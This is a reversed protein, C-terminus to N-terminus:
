LFKCDKPFYYEPHKGIKDFEKQNKESFVKSIAWYRGPGGGLSPIAKKFYEALSILGSHEKSLKHLLNKLATGIPKVQNNRNAQECGYFVSISKEYPQSDFDMQPALLKSTIWCGTDAICIMDPMQIPHKVYKIDNEFIKKSIKEVTNASKVWNHSHALLGYYIHSQAENYITPAPPVSQMTKVSISNEFFKNLDAAKLTLKCEFIALVGGELYLKRDLLGKPYEPKLVIIDIQPSAIGKSNIMRGKTVVQFIPPLWNRLLTAWNEEGQDGATGPDEKTRKQIRDYEEAM